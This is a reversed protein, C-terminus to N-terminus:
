RTGAKGRVFKAYRYQYGEDDTWVKNSHAGKCLHSSKWASLGGSKLPRRFEVVWVHKPEKM